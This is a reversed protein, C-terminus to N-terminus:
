KKQSSEKPGQQSQVSKQESEINMVTRYLSIFGATAGFMIGVILAIPFISLKKDLWYGLFGGIVISLGFRLGIDSYVAILRPWNTPATKRV